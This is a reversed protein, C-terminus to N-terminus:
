STVLELAMSFFPLVVNLARATPSVTAKLVSVVALVGVMSRNTAPLPMAPPQPGPPPGPAPGLAPWDAGGLPDLLEVLEALVCDDVQGVTPM